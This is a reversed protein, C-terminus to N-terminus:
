GGLAPYHFAKREGAHKQNIHHAGGPQRLLHQGGGPPVPALRQIGCAAAHRQTLRQLTQLIFEGVVAADGLAPAKYFLQIRQDRIHLAAPQVRVPQLIIRISKRRSRRAVLQGVQGLDIGLVALHEAPAEAVALVM